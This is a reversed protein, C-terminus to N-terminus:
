KPRPGHGHGHSHSHANVSGTSDDGDQSTSGGNTVTVNITSRGHAKTETAGSGHAVPATGSIGLKVLAGFGHGPFPRNPCVKGHDHMGDGKVGCNNAYGYGVDNNSALSPAQALFSAVLVGGVVLAPTLRRLLEGNVVKM